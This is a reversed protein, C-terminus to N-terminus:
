CYHLSEHEAWKVALHLQTDCHSRGFDPKLRYFPPHHEIKTSTVIRLRQPSRRPIASQPTHRSSHRAVNRWATSTAIWPRQATQASDVIQFTHRALHRHGCYGGRCGVDGGRFKGQGGEIGGCSGGGIGGCSKAWRVVERRLGLGIGRSWQDM